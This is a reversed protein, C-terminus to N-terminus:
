LFEALCLYYVVCFVDGLKLSIDTKVCYAYGDESVVDMLTANDVDWNCDGYKGTVYFGSRKPPTYVSWTGDCGPDGWVANASTITFLNRGDTPIAQDKSKAGWDAIEGSGNVRTFIINQVKATDIDISWIDTEGEVPEMRIGPWATGPGPSGWTHAGVAAGDTKWWGQEVKCYITSTTAETEKTMNGRVSGFAILGLSALTLTGILTLLKSKRTNM